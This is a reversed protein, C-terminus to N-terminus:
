SSVPTPEGSDAPARVDLNSITTIEEDNDDYPIVVQILHGKPVKTDEIRLKDQMLKGGYFWRQESSINEAKALTQKIQRITHRNRVTLKLDKGNSLRLKIVVEEGPDTDTNDAANEDETDERQINTPRSLVYVPLQYRSGLEDYCDTLVGTTLIFFHVSFLFILLWASFLKGICDSQEDSCLEIKCVDIFVM